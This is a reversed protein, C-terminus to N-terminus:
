LALCDGCLVRWVIRLVACLIYNYLIYGAVGIGIFNEKLWPNINTKM